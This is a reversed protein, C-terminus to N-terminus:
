CSSCLVGIVHVVSTVWKIDITFGLRFRKNIGLFTDALDNSDPPFNNNSTASNKQVQIM